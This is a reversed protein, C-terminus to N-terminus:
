YIANSGRWKRPLIERVKKALAELIVANGDNMLFDTCKDALDDPLEALLDKLAMKNVQHLEWDSTASEVNDSLETEPILLLLSVLLEDFGTAEALERVKVTGNLRRQAVQLIRLQERRKSPLRILTREGGEGRRIAEGVYLILWKQFTSKSNGDKEVYDAAARTLGVYANQIIEEREEVDNVSYKNCWGTAFATTFRFWENVLQEMTKNSFDNGPVPADGTTENRTM